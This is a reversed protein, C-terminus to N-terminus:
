WVVDVLGSDTIAEDATVLPLGLRLACAVILRDFVDDHRWALQEAELVDEATMPEFVLSPSAIARWWERVTTPRRLRGNKALFWTELVVPAPVYLVAAGAEYAAFAREARRGLKRPQAALWVIPHTDTVFNM